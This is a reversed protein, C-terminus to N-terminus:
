PSDGPKLRDQIVPGIVSATFPMKRATRGINTNTFLIGDSKKISRREIQVNTVNIAILSGSRLSLKM